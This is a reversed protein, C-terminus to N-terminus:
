CDSDYNSLLERYYKEKDLSFENANILDKILTDMFCYYVSTTIKRLLESGVWFGITTKQTGTPGYFYIMEKYYIKNFKNIYKNLKDIIKKTNDGIATGPNYELISEPINAKKLYMKSLLYEQYEILCSCKRVTQFGNCDTQYIFGQVCKRCPIYKTLHM